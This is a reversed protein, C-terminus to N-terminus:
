AAANPVRNRTYESAVRAIRAANPVNVNRSAGRMAAFRGVGHIPTQSRMLMPTNRSHTTTSAVVRKRTLSADAEISQRSGNGAQGRWVVMGRQYGRRPM